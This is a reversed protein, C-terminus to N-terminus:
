RVRVAAREPSSRGANLKSVADSITSQLNTLGEQVANSDVPIGGARMPDITREFASAAKVTDEVLAHARSEQPLITLPDRCSDRWRAASEKLEELNPDVSWTVERLRTVAWQAVVRAIAGDIVALEQRKADRRRQHDVRATYALAVCSVGVAAWTPVDSM